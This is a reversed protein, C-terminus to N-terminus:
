YAATAAQRIFRGQEIEDVFAIAYD